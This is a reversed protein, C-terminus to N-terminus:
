LSKVLDIIRKKFILSLFAICLIIIYRLLTNNYLVNILITILIIIISVVLFDKFYFVNIGKIEKKCIYLSFLYHGFAYLAYCVLTTYAAAAYGFVPVFIYNLVINLGAAIFSAITIFFRKEYYFEFNSYVNYMYIFFVSSAIPPIVYVAEAYDKSAFIWVIEPAFLMLLVCVGAVLAMIPRLRKNIDSYEEKKLCEYLWPTIAQAIANTVLQTLMGVNYAVSYLAVSSTGLLKQIVIRDGQNLLSGSLYHPILPLNFLISYKWYAKIFFAKGKYYQYIMIAGCIVIEVIVASFIRGEAKYSSNLVIVIGIFPNLISKILSIIVISKYKYEFRNKGMWFQIMPTMLMEIFMMSVITTSLELFSNFFGRFIYYVLYFAGCLVTVLGQMSSIYRDRDDHFKVMAKNFVGYYLNLCTFISLINLWSLYVSYTGYQETTLLRTFIPVTIISIGRQLVNCITFWLGAKVPVSMSKYTNRGKVLISSVAKMEIRICRELISQSM